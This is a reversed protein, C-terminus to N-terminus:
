LSQLTLHNFVLAKDPLLGVAFGPVSLLKQIYYWFILTDYLNCQTDNQSYWKVDIYMCRDGGGGGM